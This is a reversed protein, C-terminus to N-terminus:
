ERCDPRGPARLARRQVALAALAGAENIALHALMPAALSGSRAYLWGFAWGAGGTVLVAGLVPEGAGRADAVHSLGFAASQVLRGWVPGFAGDAVSGLAARFAAEESWVTGIPIRLLLWAAPDPLDRAAMGDRVRPAATTVAVGAAVIGAVALGLRLGRGLAPPRLGLPARTSLMLATSLAAHVPLQRRPALRPGVFGSWGVLSAALALARTRNGAM